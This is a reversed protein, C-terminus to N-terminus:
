SPLAYRIRAVTIRQDIGCTAQLLKLNAEHTNCAGVKVQVWKPESPRYDLHASAGAEQFMGVIREGAEKDVVFAAMDPQAGSATGQCVFCDLWNLGIGRTAYLEGEPNDITELLAMLNRVHGTEQAEAQTIKAKGWLWRLADQNIVAHPM